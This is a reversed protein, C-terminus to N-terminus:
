NVGKNRLFPGFKKDSQLIHNRLWETLFDLVDITITKQGSTYAVNFDIVKQTFADHERKHQKFEPYDYKEFLQEETNFHYVTYDILEKLVGGLLDRGKGRKMADFLTNLLDILKRHQEDVQTVGVSFDSRWAILSM